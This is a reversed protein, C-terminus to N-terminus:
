GELYASSREKYRGEERCRLIFWQFRNSKMYNQFVATQIFLHIWNEVIEYLTALYDSNRFGQCKQM